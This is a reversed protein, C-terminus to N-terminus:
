RSPGPALAPANVYTIVALVGPAREAADVAIHLIAGNSSTFCADGMAHPVNLEKHLDCAVLDLGLDGTFARLRQYGGTRTV